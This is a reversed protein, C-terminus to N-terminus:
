RIFRARSCAIDHRCAIAAADLAYALTMISGFVAVGLAGGLEFGVEEISAAMGAREPPAANMITASAFTM